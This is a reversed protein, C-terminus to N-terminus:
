KGPFQGPDSNYKSNIFKSAVKIVSAPGVSYLAFADYHKWEVGKIALYLSVGLFVLVFVITVCDSLSPQGDADYVLGTLFTKIKGM